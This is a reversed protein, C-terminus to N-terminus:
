TPDCCTSHQPGQVEHCRRIQKCGKTPDAEAGKSLEPLRPRCVLLKGADGMSLYGLKLGVYVMILARSGSLNCREATGLTGVYNYYKWPNGAYHSSKQTKGSKKSRLAKPPGKM